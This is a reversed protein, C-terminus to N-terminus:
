STFLGYFQTLYNGKRIGKRVGEKEKKIGKGKGHKKKIIIILFKSTQSEFDVGQPPTIKGMKKEHIIIMFM